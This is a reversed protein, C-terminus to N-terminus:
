EIGLLAYGLDRLDPFVKHYSFACGLVQMGFYMAVRNKPDVLAFAGAAGDWGFEGEASRARSLAKNVHARGCLGWGYGYLRTPHHDPYATDPLRNEGMMAITEPKLVRYGEPSTGGNALTTLLKMQDNVTSFLGAGGSDYGKCLVFRSHDAEGDIPLAKMQGHVFRHAQVFRKKQEESPRFGTDTMGLPETINTRVYEAFPMGAIVEVVAALVDHCLSYRYRTGPEFHLPGQALASVLSVTNAEPSAAANLIPETKLEYDLGGTMTFLHEVTMPNQAPLLAGDKQRVTLNAFAPLYKAVPDDPKLRGEEMLRLACICTTIKSVSYVRYIDNETVPVTKAHDAFGASHRYVQKGELSVSFDCAPIGFQPLLDLYRDLESTNM